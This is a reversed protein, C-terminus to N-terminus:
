DNENEKYNSTKKVYPCWLNATVLTKIEQLYGLQLNNQEIMQELIKFMQQSQKAQNEIITSFQTTSSKHYIYFCTFAIVDAGLIKFYELIETPMVGRKANGPLAAFKQQMTKKSKRLKLVASKFRVTGRVSVAGIM